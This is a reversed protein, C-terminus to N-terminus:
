VAAFSFSTHNYIQFCMHEKYREYVCLMGRITNQVKNKNKNKVYNYIRSSKKLFTEKLRM